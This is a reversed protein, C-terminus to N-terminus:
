ALAQATTAAGHGLMEMLRSYTVILGVWLFRRIAALEPKTFGTVFLTMVLLAAGSVLSLIKVGLGVQVPILNVLVGAITDGFMGGLSFSHAWDDGPVLTTAYISAITVAIVAFVIRGLIRDSGRHLIFRLGWAALILPILWTGKGGIIILTSAVAAGFRGMMNQAAEDTAVMWGPDEPSYSGLMAVFILGAIVLGLGLLERGRRELMASVNQDLLPDRQRAQYSAM